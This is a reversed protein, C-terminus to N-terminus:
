TVFDVHWAFMMRFVLSEIDKQMSSWTWAQYETAVSKKELDKVFRQLFVASTAVMVTSVHSTRAENQLQYLQQVVSADYQHDSTPTQSAVVPPGSALTPTRESIIARV